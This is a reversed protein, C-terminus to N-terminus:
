LNERHVPLKEEPHGLPEVTMVEGSNMVAWHPVSSLGRKATTAVTSAPAATVPRNTNLNLLFNAGEYGNSVMRM